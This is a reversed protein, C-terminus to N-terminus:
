PAYKIVWFVFPGAAAPGNLFVTTYPVRDLETDTFGCALTLNSSSIDRNERRLRLKEEVV